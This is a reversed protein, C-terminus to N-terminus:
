SQENLKVKPKFTRSTQTFMFSTDQCMPLEQSVAKLSKQNLKEESDSQFLELHLTTPLTLPHHIPLNASGVATSPHKNAASLELFFFRFLKGLLYVPM